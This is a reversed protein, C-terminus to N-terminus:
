RPIVRRTRSLEDRRLEILTAAADGDLGARYAAYLEDGLPHEALIQTWSEARGVEGPPQTIMEEIDKLRYDARAKRLEPLQWPEIGLWAAIKEMNPFIALM